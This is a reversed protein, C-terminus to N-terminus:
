HQPQCVYCPPTEQPGCTTELCVGLPGSPLKCKAALKACTAPVPAEALDPCGALLWTVAIFALRRM